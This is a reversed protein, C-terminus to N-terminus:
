CFNLCFFSFLLARNDAFAYVSAYSLMDEVLGMQLGVGM